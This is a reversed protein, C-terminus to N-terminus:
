RKRKLVDPDGFVDAPHSALYARIQETPSIIVVDGGENKTSRFQITFGDKKSAKDFADGDVFAVSLEDGALKYKAIQHLAVAGMPLDVSDNGHTYNSLLLDAFSNDGLKILHMEYTAEAGGKADRLIAEYGDKSKEIRISDLADSKDSTWAGVLGPEDAADSKTYLPAVSSACGALFLSLALPAVMSIRM